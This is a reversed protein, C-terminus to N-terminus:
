IEKWSDVISNPNGGSMSITQQIVRQANNIEGSSTILIDTGSTEVWITYTGASFSERKPDTPDVGFPEPYSATRWSGDISGDPATNDLYWVAKNIGGEAIYFAKTSDVQFSINRMDSSLFSIYAAVAVVLTVMFILTLILIFGSEKNKIYM